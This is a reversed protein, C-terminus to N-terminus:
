RASRADTERVDPVSLLIESGRTDSHASHLFRVPPPALPSTTGRATPSPLLDQDRRCMEELIVPHWLGDRDAAPVYNERAWRRLQLEEVADVPVGPIPPM